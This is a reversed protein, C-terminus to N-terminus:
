ISELAVAVDGACELIQRDATVLSVGLSRALVVFEADYASLGSELATTVVQASDVEPATGALVSDADAVMAVADSLQVFDRRVLGAVVNRLESWLIRPAIWEPDERLLRQAHSSFDRGTVLYIVVNTDVVIM